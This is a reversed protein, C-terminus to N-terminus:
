RTSSEGKTDSSHVSNVSPASHLLLAQYRAWNDPESVDSHYEAADRNMLNCLTNQEQQELLLEAQILHERLLDYKDLVAKQQKFAERNIRISQTFQRSFQSISQHLLEMEQDSIQISLDDCYLCFLALNVNGDYSNQWGLLENQLEIQQYSTISFQWLEAPEILGKKDASTGNDNSNDNIQQRDIQITM